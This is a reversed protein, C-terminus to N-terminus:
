LVRSFLTIHAHAYAKIRFSIWQMRYLLCADVNETFMFNGLTFLFLFYVLLLSFLLLTMAIAYIFQLSCMICMIHQWLACRLIVLLMLMVHFTYNVLLLLLLLLLFSFLSLSFFVAVYILYFVFMLLGMHAMFLNVSITFIYRIAKVNLFHQSM